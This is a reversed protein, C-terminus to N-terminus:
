IRGSSDMYPGGGTVSGAVVMSSSFMADGKMNLEGGVMLDDVGELKGGTGLNISGAFVTHGLFM